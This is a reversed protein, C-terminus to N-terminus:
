KKKKQNYKKHVGRFFNKTEKEQFNHLECSHNLEREMVRMKASLKKSMIRAYRRTYSHTTTYNDVIDLITQKKM